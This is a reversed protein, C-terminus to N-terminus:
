AVSLPADRQIGGGTPTTAPRTPSSAVIRLPPRATQGLTYRDGLAGLGLGLAHTVLGGLVVVGYTGPGVFRLSLALNALFFATIGSAGLTLAVRPHREHFGCARERLNM